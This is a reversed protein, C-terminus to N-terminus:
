CTPTTRRSRDFSGQVTQWDERPYREALLKLAARRRHGAVLLYQDRPGGVERVVLPQLLGYTRISAALEDVNRLRRRPNTDSDVVIADIDVRRKGRQSPTTSAASGPVQKATGQRLTTVM